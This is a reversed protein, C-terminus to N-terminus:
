SAMPLYVARILPFHREVAQRIFSLMTKLPFREQFVRRGGRRTVSVAQWLLYVWFRILGIRQQLRRPSQGEPLNVLKGWQGLTAEM